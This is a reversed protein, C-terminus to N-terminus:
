KKAIKQTMALLRPEPSLRRHPWPPLALTRVRMAALLPLRPPMLTLTLRTLLLKLV